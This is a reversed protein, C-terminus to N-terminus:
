LFPVYSLMEQKEGYQSLRVLFVGAQIGQPNRHIGFTYVEM